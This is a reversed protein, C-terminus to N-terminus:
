GNIMQGKISQLFDQAEQRATPRGSTQIRRLKESAELPSM